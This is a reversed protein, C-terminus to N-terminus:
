AGAHAGQKQEDMVHPIERHKRIDGHHVVKLYSGMLTLALTHGAFDKSAEQREEDTGDRRTTCSIGGAEPSLNELDIEM